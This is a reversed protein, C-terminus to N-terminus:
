LITETSNSRLRTVSDGMKKDKGGELKTRVGEGQSRYLLIENQKGQGLV